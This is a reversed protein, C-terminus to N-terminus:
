GVVDHLRSRVARGLRRGRADRISAFFDGLQILPEQHISASETGSGVLSYHPRVVVGHPGPVPDLVEDVLMERLGKRLVQRM